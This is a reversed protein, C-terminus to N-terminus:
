AERAAEMWARRREEALEHLYAIQDPTLDGRNDVPPKPEMM